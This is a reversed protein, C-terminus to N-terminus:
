DTNKGLYIAGQNYCNVYPGLCSYDEMYLNQPLWVKVNAHVTCTYKIHAGFLNLIFVRYKRFIRPVFPRVLLLHLLIWVMRKLKVQTSFKHRTETM